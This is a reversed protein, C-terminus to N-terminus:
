IASLGEEIEELRRHGHKKGGKKGGKGDHNDRGKNYGNDHSDNKSMGRMMERLDGLKIIEESKYGNMVLTMQEDARMSTDRTLHTGEQRAKKLDDVFKCGIVAFHSCKKDKDKLVSDEVRTHVVRSFIANPHLDGHSDSGATIYLGYRDGAQAMEEFKKPNGQNASHLLEYGVIGELKEGTVPNYADETLAKFVYDYFNYMKQENLKKQKGTLTEDEIFDMNAFKANRPDSYNVNYMSRHPRYLGPHALVTYGGAKQIISMVEQVDAKAYRVLNQGDTVFKKWDKIQDENLKFKESIFKEIGAQTEDFSPVIPCNESFEDIGAKMKNDELWKKTAFVLSGNKVPTNKIKKTYQNETNMLLDLYKVVPNELDFDYALMHVKGDLVPRRNGKDDYVVGVSATSVTYECGSIFNINKYKEPDRKMEELVEVNSHTNNHDSVAFTVPADYKNAYEAAEELLGVPTIGTKNMEVGFSSNTHNHLDIFGKDSSINHLYRM